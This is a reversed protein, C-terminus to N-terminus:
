NIEVDYKKMLEKGKEYSSFDIIDDIDMEVEFVEELSAILNMHGVSDWEDVGQYKLGELQNEEIM